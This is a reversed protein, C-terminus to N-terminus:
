TETVKVIANVWFGKGPLFMRNGTELSFNVWLGKCCGPSWLDLKDYTYWLCFTVMVVKYKFNFQLTAM